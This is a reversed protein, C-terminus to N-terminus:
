SQMAIWSDPLVLTKPPLETPLFYALNIKTRNIVPKPLNAIRLDEKPRRIASNSSLNIESMPVQQPAIAHPLHCSSGPQDWGPWLTRLKNSNLGTIRHHHVRPHHSTLIAVAIQLPKEHLSPLCRGWLKNAIARSGSLSQPM